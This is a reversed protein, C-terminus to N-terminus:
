ADKHTAAYVKSIRFQQVLRVVGVVIFGAGVVLGVSDLAMVATGGLAVALGLLILVGGSHQARVSCRPCLIHTFGWRAEKKCDKYILAQGCTPCYHSHMACVGTTLSFDAYSYNQRTGEQKM